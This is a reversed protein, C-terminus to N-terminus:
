KYIYTYLEPLEDLKCIIFFYIMCIKFLENSIIHKKHFKLEKFVSYILHLQLTISEIVVMFNETVFM